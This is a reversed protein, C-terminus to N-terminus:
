HLKNRRCTNHLCKAANMTFMACFQSPIIKNICRYVFCGIQYDNLQYVNLISLKLLLPESHTSYKSQTILWVAINQTVFLKNLFTTRSLAWAIDCHSLYPHIPTYFVHIICIATCM